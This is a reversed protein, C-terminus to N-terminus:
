EHKSASIASKAFDVLDQLSGAVEDYGASHGKEYAKSYCLNYLEDSLEAYEARLESHFLAAAKSESARVDDWFAKIEERNTVVADILAPKGSDPIASAAQKRSDFPGLAVGDQYCYYVTKEKPSELAIEHGVRACAEKWSIM